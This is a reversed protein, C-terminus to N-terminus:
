HLGRNAGGERVSLPRVHWRQGYRCESRDRLIHGNVGGFRVKGGGELLGPYCSVKIGPGARSWSDSTEVQFTM